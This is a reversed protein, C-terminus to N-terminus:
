PRYVCVLDQRLAERAEVVVAQLLSQLETPPNLGLAHEATQLAKLPEGAGLAAIALGSWDSPTPNALACLAEYVPVAATWAELSWLAKGILRYLAPEVVGQQLLTHGEEVLESWRGLQAYAQCLGLRANQLEPEGALAERFAQMAKESDGLQNHAAGINVFLSPTTDGLRHATEFAELAADPRGMALHIVGLLTHTGPFDANVRIAQCVSNRAAEYQQLKYQVTGMLLWPAWPVLRVPHGPQEPRHAFEVAKRFQELATEPEQKHDYAQGLYLYASALAPWLAIAQRLAAIAEDPAEQLLHLVGLQQCALAATADGITQQGRTRECDFLALARRYSAIAQDQQSLTMHTEALQIWTLSDEPTRSVQDELLRLNRMAKAQMVEHTQLYGLHELTMESYIIKGKGRLSPLLCEHIVGEYRAGIRSRFLRPLWRLPITGLASGGHTPCQLKVLYAAVDPVEVLDRMLPGSNGVLREDADLVLIWDGVARRLSQNRAAAFDDRWEERFVRAGAATAIEVTRDTSGTDVVVIEDVFPGANALCDPLYREENKVIMCLSVIERRKVRKGM